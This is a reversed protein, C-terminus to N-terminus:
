FTFAYSSIFAFNMAVLIDLANGAWADQVTCYKKPNMIYYCYFYLVDHVPKKPRKADVILM